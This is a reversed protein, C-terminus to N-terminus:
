YNIVTLFICHMNVVLHPPHFVRIARIVPDVPFGDIIVHVDIRVCVAYVNTNTVNAVAALVVHQKVVNQIIRVRRGLIM